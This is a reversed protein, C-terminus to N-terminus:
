GGNKKTDESRLRERSIYDQIDSILPDEHRKRRPKSAQGKRKDLDALVNGFHLRPWYEGFIFLGAVLAVSFFVVGIVVLEVITIATLGESAILLRYFCAAGFLGFIYSCVFGKTALFGFNDTVWLWFRKFM